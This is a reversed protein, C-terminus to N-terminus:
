DVCESAYLAVSKTELRFRNHGRNWDVCWASHSQPHFNSRLCLKVVCEASHSRDYENSLQKQKRKLGRVGHRHSRPTRTEWPKIWADRPTCMDTASGERIPMNWDVCERLTVKREEASRSNTKLGRVWASARIINWRNFSNLGRVWSAITHYRKSCVHALGRM